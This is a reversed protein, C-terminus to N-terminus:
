KLIRIMHVILTRLFIWIPYVKTFNFDLYFMNESATKNM